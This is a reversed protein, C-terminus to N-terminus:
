SFLRWATEIARRLPSMFVTTINPLAEVIEKADACQQQGLPSLEADKLSLDTACKHALEPTNGAQEVREIAALNYTSQAHRVLILQSKQLEELTNTQQQKM